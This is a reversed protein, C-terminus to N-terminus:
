RFTSIKFKVKGKASSGLAEIICLCSTTNSVIHVIITVWSFPIKLFYVTSYILEFGDLFDGLLGLISLLM